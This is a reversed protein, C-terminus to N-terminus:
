RLSHKTGKSWLKLLCLQCILKCVELCSLPPMLFEDEAPYQSLFSISAGSDVTGTYIEFICGDQGNRASYHLATAKSTTMSMFGFEVAGGVYCILLPLMNETEERAFELAFTINFDLESTYTDQKFTLLQRCKGIKQV